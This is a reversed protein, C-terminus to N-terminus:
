RICTGIQIIKSMSKVYYYHIKKMVYMEFDCCRSSSLRTDCFSLSRAALRASSPGLARLRQTVNLSFPGPSENMISVSAHNWGPQRHWRFNMSSRSIGSVKVERVLYWNMKAPTLCQAMENNSDGAQLKWSSFLVKACIIHQIKLISFGRACKQLDELEFDISCSDSSM